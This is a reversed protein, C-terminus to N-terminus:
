LLLHLQVHLISFSSLYHCFDLSHASYLKIFKCAGTAICWNSCLPEADILILLLLLLVTITQSLKNHVQVLTKLPLPPPLMCLPSLFAPQQATACATSALVYVSKVLKIVLCLIM